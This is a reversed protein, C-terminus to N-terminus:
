HSLLIKSNQLQQIDAAGVLFMARKLDMGFGRIKDIVTEYSKTASELVPLAFGVLSAGMALAKACELGTRMGGSAILPISVAEKCQRLSEATQIGWELFAEGSIGGRYSEVKTMSTGGAGGTDLFTAGASALIRAIDGAIGCGTEKVAVPFGAHRCLREINELIHSWDTNGEPQCIEQATNLHIILGEAEIEEVMGIIDHTDYHPLESAGINGLLFINPAAKRVKYSYAVQPDELMARQSGVGMGIGLMEAAKALNWNIKEAGRQKM